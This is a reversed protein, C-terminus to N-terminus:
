AKREDRAAGEGAAGGGDFLARVDDKLLFVLTLIGLVTGFPMFMCDMGGMVLCFTYRRRRALSRGALFVCTAFTLGGLIWVSAFAVLFWGVLSLPFPEKPPQIAGTVVALGVVLHITPILSFLGAIVAVVYHFISLLKLIQENQSM